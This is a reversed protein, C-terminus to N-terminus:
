ESAKVAVTGTFIAACALTPLCLMGTVTRKWVQLPLIQWGGFLACRETATVTALQHVGETKKACASM